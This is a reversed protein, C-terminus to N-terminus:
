TLYRLLLGRLLAVGCPGRWVDLVAMNLVAVDFVMM